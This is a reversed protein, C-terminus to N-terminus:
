HTVEHAELYGLITTAKKLLWSPERALWGEDVKHEKDEKTMKHKCELRRYEGGKKVRWAGHRGQPIKRM